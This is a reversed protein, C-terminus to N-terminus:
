RSMPLEKDLRAATDKVLGDVFDPIVGMYLSVGEAVDPNPVVHLVDLSAAFRAALEKAYELARGSPEGFDFPVLIHNVVM